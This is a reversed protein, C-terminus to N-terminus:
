MYRSVDPEAPQEAPEEETPAPAQPSLVAKKFKKDTAMTGIISGLEALGDNNMFLENPDFQMMGVQEAMAALAAVQAFLEAPVADQDEYTQAEELIQGGSLQEAANVVAESLATLRNGQLTEEPQPASQALFEQTQAAEENMQMDAQQDYEDPM